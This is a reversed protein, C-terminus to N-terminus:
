YKTLEQTGTIEIILSGSPLLKLNRMAGLLVSFSAKSKLSDRHSPLEPKRCEPRCHDPRLSILHGWSNKEDWEWATLKQEATERHSVM